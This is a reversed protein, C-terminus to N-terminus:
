IVGRGAAAAPGRTCGGGGNCNLGYVRQNIARAVGKQLTVSIQRMVYNYIIKKELKLYGTANRATADFFDKAAKSPAGTSMYVIPTFGCTVQRALEAYTRMKEDHRQQGLHFRKLAMERSEAKPVGSEGGKVPATVSFDLLMKRHTTEIPNNISIDPKMNNNDLGDIERFLGKEERVTAHGMWKLMNDICLVCSDHTDVRLREQGCGTGIHLGIRDIKARQTRKCSCFGGANLNYVPLMLRYRLATRYDANSFRMSAFKPKDLL